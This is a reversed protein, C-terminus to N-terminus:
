AISHWSQWAVCTATRITRSSIRWLGVGGLAEAVTIVAWRVVQEPANALEPLHSRLRDPEQQGLAIIAARRVGPDRDTLMRVLESGDVLGPVRGAAAVSAARVDANPDRLATLAAARFEEVAFPVGLEWLSSTRPCPSRTASSWLFYASSGNGRDL